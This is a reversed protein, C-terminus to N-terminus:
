DCSIDLISVYGVTFFADPDAEGGLEEDVENVEDLEMAAHDVEEDEEVDQEQHDDELDGQLRHKGEGGAVLRLVFAVEGDLADGVAVGVEDEDAGEDGEEGGGGDGDM